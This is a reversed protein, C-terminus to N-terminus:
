NHKIGRNKLIEVLIRDIGSAKRGKIKKLASMKGEKVVERVVRANEKTRERSVDGGVEMIEGGNLLKVFYMKWRGEIDNERTLEEGRRISSSKLNKGKRVKNGGKWFKQRVRM